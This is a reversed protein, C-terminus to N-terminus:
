LLLKRDLYSIVNEVKFESKSIEAELLTNGFTTLLVIKFVSDNRGSFYTLASFEKDKYSVTTKYVMSEATDAHFLETKEKATMDVMKLDRFIAPTCSFLFLCASISFLIAKQFTLM